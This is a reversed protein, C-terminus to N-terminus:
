LGLEGQIRAREAERAQKLLHAQWRQTLWALGQWTVHTQSAYRNRSLRTLKM